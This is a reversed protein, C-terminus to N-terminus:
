CTSTMPNGEDNLRAWIPARSSTLKAFTAEDLRWATAASTYLPMRSWGYVAFEVDGGSVGETAQPEPRVCCNSM